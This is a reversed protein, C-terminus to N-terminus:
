NLNLNPNLYKELLTKGAFVCICASVLEKSQGKALMGRSLVNHWDYM